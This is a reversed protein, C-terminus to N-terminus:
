EETSNEHRIVGCFPIVQKLMDKPIYSSDYTRNIGNEAHYNEGEAGRKNWLMVAIEVQLPEYKKPVVEVSDDFPYAKNIIARGSLDLYVNLEEDHSTDRIGLLVKLKTLQDM